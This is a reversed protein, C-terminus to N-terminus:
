CTKYMKVADYHDLSRCFIMANIVNYVSDDKDDNKIFTAKYIENLKTKAKEVTNLTLWDMEWAFNKTYVSESFCYQDENSSINELFRGGALKIQQLFSDVV